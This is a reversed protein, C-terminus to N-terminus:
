EDAIEVEPRSAAFQKVQASSFQHTGLHLKELQPLRMIGSLDKLGTESLWVEKLNKFEGEWTIHAVNSKSIKLEALSPLPGLVMHETDLTGSITLSVLKELHSFAPEGQLGSLRADLKQLAKLDRLFSMEESRYFTCHLSQLKKIGTSKEWDKIRCNRLYLVRLAPLDALGSLSQLNRNGSLSLTHLHQLQNLGDASPLLNHGAYLEQLCSLTSLGDLGELLNISVDLYELQPCAEIGSLSSIENNSLILKKLVPKDGLGQLNRIQHKTVSLEELRHFQELGQLSTFPDPILDRTIEYDLYIGDVEAFSPLIGMESFYSGPDPTM